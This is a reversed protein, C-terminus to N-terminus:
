YWIAASLGDSFREPSDPLSRALGAACRRASWAAAAADLVDDVAAVEGAPGLGAPLEIGTSRLLEKRLEAGAWTKKAFRLPGGALEQFSVEPHVEWVIPRRWWATPDTPGM